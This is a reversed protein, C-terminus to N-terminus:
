RYLMHEPSIPTPLQAILGPDTEMLIEKFKRATLAGETKGPENPHDKCWRVLNDDIYYANQNGLCILLCESPTTEEQVRGLGILKVTSHRTHASTDIEIMIQMKKSINSQSQIKTQLSLYEYIVTDIDVEIVQNTALKKVLLGTSISMNNPLFHRVNNLASKIHRDTWSKVCFIFIKDPFLPSVIYRYRSREKTAYRVFPMKTEIIRQQSISRDPYIVVRPEQVSFGNKLLINCQQTPLFVREKKPFLVKKNSPVGDFVNLTTIM